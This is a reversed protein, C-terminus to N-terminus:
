KGIWQQFDNLFQNVAETTKPHIAMKELINPPVTVIDAGALFADAVDQMHRISGVIIETNTGQLLQHTNKIVRAPDGGIDKIRGAFLSFYRVGAACALIAQSENLGCTCNVRLGENGLKKIVELEELGIPIKINLNSYNIKSVFEKAQEYIKQPDTQFVEVSLPIEQNYKQCLEVIKKIHSFYDSKPEKSFLAPNTTIGSFIGRQLGKEIEELNATDLFIKM